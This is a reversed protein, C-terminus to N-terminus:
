STVEAGWWTWGARRSRAFLELWPGPAIREVLEQLESPKASHRRQRKWAFWTTDIREIAELSGRRAFLVFETTITFTGGLGIGMPTKCWTLLTSPVFGWARAVGYAAELFQNTTWLFLHADEAARGEVELLAIDEVTMTQYPFPLAGLESTGAARPGSEDPRVTRREYPWPPDAVIARWRGEPLPPTEGRGALKRALSLVGSLTLEEGAEKKATVHAVFDEDPLQSPRIAQWRSSMSWTFGEPLDRAGHSPSGGSHGVTEALLEGGKRATRLKTVAIENQEDQDIRYRRAYQSLAELKDYLEKAEAPTEVEALARQAASLEVLEGSM